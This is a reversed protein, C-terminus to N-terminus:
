VEVIRRALTRPLQVWPCNQHPGYLAPLSAERWDEAKKGPRPKKKGIEKEPPQSDMRKDKQTIWRHLEGM